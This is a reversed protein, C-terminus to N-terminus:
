PPATSTLRAAWRYPWPQVRRWIPASSPTVEVVTLSCSATGADGHTAASRREDQEVCCIRLQTVMAQGPHHGFPDLHGNGTGPAAVPTGLSWIWWAQASPLLHEGVGEILARGNADSCGDSIMEASGRGPSLQSTSSPCGVTEGGETTSADKM